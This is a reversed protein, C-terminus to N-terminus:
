RSLSKVFHIDTQNVNNNILNDTFTYAFIENPHYISINDPINYYDKISQLNIYKLTKNDYGKDKFIRNNKVLIPYIIQNDHKYLWIDSNSDPNTMYIKKLKIPLDTVNIKSHLFPYKKYYFKNFKDQHLRQLIHIKEHILTDLFYIDIYEPNKIFKIYKKYLMKINIVIYTDITYPMGGELKNISLIFKWKIDRLAYLKNMNFINDAYKTYNNLMKRFKTPINQLSLLYIKKFTGKDVNKVTTIKNKYQNSHIYDIYKSLHTNNASKYKKLKNDKDNMSKNFFSYLVYSIIILLLIFIYNM